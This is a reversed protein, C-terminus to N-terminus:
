LLFLDEDGNEFFNLTLMDPSFLFAAPSQISAVTRL